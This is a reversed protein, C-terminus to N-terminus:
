GGDARSISSRFSWSWVRSIIQDSGIRDSGTRDVIMELSQCSWHLTTCHPTVQRMGKQQRPREAAANCELGAEDGGAASATRCCGSGVRGSGVRDLGIRKLALSQCGRSRSRSCSFSRGRSRHSPRSPCSPLSPRLHSFSGRSTRLRLRPHSSCLGNQTSHSEKWEIEGTILFGVM